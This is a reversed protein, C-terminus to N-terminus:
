EGVVIVVLIVVLIAVLIPHCACAAKSSQVAEPVQCDM